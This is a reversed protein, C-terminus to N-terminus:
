LNLAQLYRRLGHLVYLSFRGLAVSSSLAGAVGDRASQHRDRAAAPDDALARDDVPAIGAGDVPWQDSHAPLGARERSRLGAGGAHGHGLLMGTGFIAIPFFMMNGLSGAGIAAPGLPGAMVMDVFGMAMWGLEALALPAALRLMPRFERRLNAILSM